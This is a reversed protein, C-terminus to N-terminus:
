DGETTARTTMAMTRSTNGTENTIEAQIAHHNTIYHLVHKIEAKSMSSPIPLSM